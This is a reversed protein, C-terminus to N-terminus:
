RCSGKGAHVTRTGELSALIVLASIWLAPRKELYRKKMAAAKKKFALCSYHPYIQLDIYEWHMGRRRM